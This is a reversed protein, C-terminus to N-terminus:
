AARSIACHECADSCRVNPHPIASTAPARRVGPAPLVLARGRAPRAPPERHARGLVQGYRPFFLYTSYGFVTRLPPRGELRLHRLAWALGMPVGVQVLLNVLGGLHAWIGRTWLLLLFSGFLVGLQAPTLQTPLTYGHIKGLVWPYTRAHTYSRCVISNELEHLQTQAM